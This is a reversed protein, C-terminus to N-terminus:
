KTGYMLQFTEYHDPTYYVLGDNSFVIRKAGRASAGLTDIDCEYYVRGAKKPLTGDRNTFIDGGICKGPAYRELGGGSWGLERAEEKTIFNDPLTGYISIYLAVEDKTTYSGNEDLVSIVPTSDTGQKSVPSCAGASFLVALIILLLSLRKIVTKM